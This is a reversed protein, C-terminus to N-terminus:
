FKENEFNTVKINLESIRDKLKLNEVRLKANEDRVETM